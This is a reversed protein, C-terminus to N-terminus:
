FQSFFKWSETAVWPGANWVHEGNFICARTPYGPMCGEFDVCSQTNGNPTPMERAMCGNIDAFDNIQPVGFGPYRCVDDSTGHTMFYAVPKDHQVCGSMPGGSHVAVARIESGMACAVAYSMSGGMSFGQAFVRGNDICLKSKLDTLLAKAFNIDEGGTSKSGGADGWQNDKGQPAVFITSGASMSWLGYYNESAVNQATGSLWHFALILRYATNADYNDPLKLIYSRNEGGVSIMYTGSKPASASGCGASKGTASGGGSGGSPGGGSGSSGSAGASGGKGSAGGSGSAGGTGFSGGGKGMGGSGTMSGGTASGGKSTTGGTSMGGSAVGGTAKAVTGGTSPATGGTGAAKTGGTGSSSGGTGGTPGGPPGSQLDSSCAFAATGVLILGGALRGYIQNHM